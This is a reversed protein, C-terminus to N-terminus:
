SVGKRRGVEFKRSGRKVGVELSMGSVTFGAHLGAEVSEVLRFKIATCKQRRLAVRFAWVGDPADLEPSWTDSDVWTDDHDYAVQVTLTHPAEISGNLLLAEVRQLGSIGALSIWGTEIELAYSDAGDDFVEGNECLISGTDTVLVHKGRWLVSSRAGISATSWQGFEHNFVLCRNETAFWIENQSRLLKASVVEEDNYLDVPDGIDAEQLSSALLRLGRTGQMVLGGPAREVSRQNTCGVTGTVIEPTSFADGRGLANPGSGFSIYPSDSKLFAIRDDLSVIANVKGGSPSIDLSLFDSFEVPQGSVVEKSFYIRGDIESIVFLRRKFIGGVLWSPPPDNELVDGTTYLPENDILDADSLDDTFVQTQASPNNDIRDKISKVAYFIEGGNGENRGLVIRSLRRTSGNFVGIRDNYLTAQVAPNTAGSLDISKTYVVPGRHRQGRNDVWEYHARYQYEATDLSGTAAAVALGAESQIFPTGFFGLFALERGDYIRTVGGSFVLNRGIEFAVPSSSFDLEGIALNALADLPNNPDDTSFVSSAVTYPFRYVGTTTNWVHVCDQDVGLSDRGIQAPWRAVVLSEEDSGEVGTLQVAYVQDRLGDETYGLLYRNGEHVFTRSFLRMGTRKVTPTGLSGANDVTRCSITGTVAWIYTQTGQENPFSSFNIYPTQSINNVVSTPGHLLNGSSDYAISYLDSTPFDSTKAGIWLTDNNGTDVGVGQWSDGPNAHTKESFNGGLPSLSSDVWIIKVLGDGFDYYALAVSGAHAACDFNGILDGAPAVLGPASYSAPDTIPIVTGHLQTGNAVFFVYFNSGQICCQPNKTGSAALEVPAILETGSVEDVVVFGIGSNDANRWAYVSISGNSAGAVSGADGNNSLPYSRAICHPLPGKSVWQELTESYSYLRNGARVLLENEFTFVGSIDSISGGGFIASPLATHGTRKDIRGRKRFVGNELAQLRGPISKRPDSGTDLGQGVDIDIIQKEVTM